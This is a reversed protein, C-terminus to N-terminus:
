RGQLIAEMVRNIAIEQYYRPPKNGLHCSPTLMGQAAAPTLKNAAQYRAWLEDPTPFALLTREQGTLYDFELIENGNTAYAFKLGLIEAYEKAQQMGTGAPEEDAKAEVVALTLDRTFRLLFDAIKRKRRRVKAGAVVIRGDTFSTQENYLHPLNDWGAAELKPRILRQCTDAENM